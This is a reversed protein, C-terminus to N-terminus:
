SEARGKRRAALRTKIEQVVDREAGDPRGSLVWLVALAALYVVIGLGVAALLRSLLVQPPGTTGVTLMFSRVAWYMMVSALLPRWLPAAVQAIGLDFTRAALWHSAPLMVLAVALYAWAAGIVGGTITGYLVTPLLLVVAAATLASLTRTRGLAMFAPGFVSGLAAVTGYFALIRVLPIADLWKDGLVTPILLEATAAVGLGAPLALLAIIGLVSLYGRVLAGPQESLKAFGPFVARNIPFVIGTTPLTSVDLSVNYLGLGTSGAVKGIVFDQLRMQLTFLVNNFFLWKSFNVLASRAALTLRPRFPHAVYSIILAAVKGTVMGAALAWYNRLIFALPITVLFGAVKRAAQYAFEVGFRLEKRYAVVGVNECGQCLSGFALCCILPVLRSDEYFWAVPYALCLLGVAVILGLGVNLTFATDYYSRDADRSQILASEFSFSWLLELIAVLSMAMAIMGFDAPLLLRALIIMSAVGIVRELARLLVM